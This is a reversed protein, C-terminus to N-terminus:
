KEIGSDDSIFLDFRDIMKQISRNASILIELKKEVPTLAKLSRTSFDELSYKLLYDALDAGDQREMFSAKEELLDSIVCNFDKLSEKVKQWRNFALGNISADPFLMIARGELPALKKPTLNALSGSALWIFQPYYVSCIIATKESEVIAIPKTPDTSILHQGFLCQDLNYDRQKLVAHVWQIHNFPKKVRKGTEENYLMIKGTRTNWEHDIQWFISSGKWVKSTGIRYQEILNTTRKQGFKGILYSILNNQSYGKLTSNVLETPIYSPPKPADTFKPYSARPIEFQNDKFYQAPTYHYSCKELRNCIGVQENVYQGTQNDVYRTFQFKKGCGPCSYRNKITNYKELTFRRM